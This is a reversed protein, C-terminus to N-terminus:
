GRRHDAAYAQREFPNERYGDRRRAYLWLSCALYAPVFFVGWRAYQAVHVHEHDRTRDLAREHQGFVAHGLTMAAAPVPFRSLVRAVVPGHIEVVGEVVRFRGCLLLGAAIAVVTNPSTWLYALPHRTWREPERGGGPERGGSPVDGGAPVNNPADDM